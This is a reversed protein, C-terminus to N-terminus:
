IKMVSTLNRLNNIQVRVISELSQHTVPRHTRVSIAVVGLPAPPGDARLAFEAPVQDDRLGRWVSQLALPCHSGLVCSWSM